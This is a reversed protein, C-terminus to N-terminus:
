SLPHQTCRCPDAVPVAQDNGKGSLAKAVLAETAVNKLDDRLNRIREHLKGNLEWLTTMAELQVRRTEDSRKCHLEREELREELRSKREELYKKEKELSRNKTELLDKEKEWSSKEKELNSKQEKLSQREKEIAMRQDEITEQTGVTSMTGALAPVAQTQPKPAAGQPESFARELSELRAVLETVYQQSPWKPNAPIGETGPKPTATTTAVKSYPPPPKSKTQRPRQGEQHVGSKSQDAGM